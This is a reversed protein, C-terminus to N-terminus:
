FLHIAEAKFTITVPQGEKLDMDAYDRQNILCCFDPPVTVTVYYNFGRNVIHTVTGTFTNAEYSAPRETSITIDDPRLCAHGIEEKDTAVSFEFGSTQFTTVGGPKRSLRGTFINRMMTFHAVFESEPQRFIQEPTGVQKLEGEGIVAIRHGLAMAEEFDHTVHVFTGKINGHLRRLEEQTAERTVPDLASLPEDLLLVEPRTSLARALAVKQREGGSLTRPKRDLLDTIGLLGALWELVAATEQPTKKRLRLGFIINDRVSLHPFLAHDQYVISVGRKEPKEGTIDRGDLAVTGQRIPNLGAISELLVTKGAGTPGLIIFYEGNQVTLSVNKLKFEGLDVSLNEIKIM